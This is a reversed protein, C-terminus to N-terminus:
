KVGGEIYKYNYGVYNNVLYRSINLPNGLYKEDGNRYKDPVYVANIVSNRINQINNMDTKFYEKMEDDYLTHLGHDGLVVIVSNPDNTKIYELLDILLFSSYVYNGVYSSAIKRSGSFVIDGNLKFIFPEHNLRFDIFMFNNNTNTISNNIGKMIAMNVWYNHNLYSDISHEYNSFDIDDYSINQSKLYNINTLGYFATQNLIPKMHVFRIYSLLKDSNDELLRFDNDLSLYDWDYKYYDYFYDVYLSTYPNFESVAYTNYGKKKFANILENNLRKRELEYYNVNFSLKNVKGLEYNNLNILYDKYFEDYYNPNFLAVLAKQTKHGAVLESDNYFYNNKKFYDYLYYNYYSFYKDVDRINMMGDCHIWYVNPTKTNDSLNLKIKSDYSKSSLFLSLANYSSIFFNYCFMIIIMFSLFVIFADNTFLINKKFNLILILCFIIFLLFSLLNFKYFYFICIFCNVFFVKKSDGNFIKMLFIYIFLTILFFVLSILVIEGFLIELLSGYNYNYINFLRILYILNPVIFLFLKNNLLKYVNKNM